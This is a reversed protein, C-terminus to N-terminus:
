NEYACGKAASVICCRDRVKLCIMPDQRVGDPRREGGTPQAEPQEHGHENGATDDDQAKTVGDLAAATSPHCGFAEVAIRYPGGVRM